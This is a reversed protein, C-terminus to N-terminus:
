DPDVAEVPMDRPDLETASSGSEAEEGVKRSRAKLDRLWGPLAGDRRAQMEIEPLRDRERKLSQELQQRRALADDLRPKIVGDRYAPDDRSYFDTWLGPIEEDLVEIQRELSNVLNLQKEYLGRWYRKKEQQGIEEADQLSDSVRMSRQGSTTGGHVGRRGSGDTTKKDPETSTVHGKDAYEALNENSIVIPTKTPEAGRNAAPTPSPDTAAAVTSLLMVSAMAALKELKKISTGM